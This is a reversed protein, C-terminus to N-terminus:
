QKLFKNGAFQFFFVFVINVTSVSSRSERIHRYTVENQITLIIM